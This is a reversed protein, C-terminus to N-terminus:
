ITHRHSMDKLLQCARKLRTTKIFEGTSLGTLEKFKRHVVSKSIGIVEVLEAAGFSADDINHEVIELANLLFNEDASTVQLDRPTVELKSRFLNRLRERSAILNNIRSVLLDEAFPKTLYDDAGNEFGEIQSEINAKATLLIVPIHSMEIDSKLKNCFIMGNMGPMMLDCIILSPQKQRALELGEM